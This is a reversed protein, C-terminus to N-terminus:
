RLWRARWPAAALLHCDVCAFSKRLGVSRRNRGGRLSDNCRWALEFGQNAQRLGDRADVQAVLDGCRVHLPRHAKPVSGGAAAAGVAVALDIDVGDHRTRQTACLQVIM